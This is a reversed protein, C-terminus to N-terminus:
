AEMPALGGAGRAGAFPNNRCADLVILSVRSKEMLQQIEAVKIANFRVDATSAGHFDTPILFNEGDVQVGHGAFYFLSVDDRGIERSFAAIGTALAQRTANEILTVSCGADELAAKMARADNVANALRSGGYDDNGVVLARRHEPQPSANVLIAGRDQAAVLALM